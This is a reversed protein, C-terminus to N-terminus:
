NDEKIEDELVGNLQKTLVMEKLKRVINRDRTLL